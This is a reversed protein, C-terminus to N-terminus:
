NALFDQHSSSAPIFPGPLHFSLALLCQGSRPSCLTSSPRQVRTSAAGARRSRPAARAGAVAGAGKPCPPAPPASTRQWSLTSALKRVSHCPREACINNGQRGPPVTLESSPTTKARTETRPGKDPTPQGQAGHARTTQHTTDPPPGVPAHELHLIQKQM